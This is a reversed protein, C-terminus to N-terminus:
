ADQHEQFVLAGCLPEIIEFGDPLMSLALVRLAEVIEDHRADAPMTITGVRFRRKEPYAAIACWPRIAPTM